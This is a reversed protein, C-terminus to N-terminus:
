KAPCACARFGDEGMETMSCAYGHWVLQMAAAKANASVKPDGVFYFQQYAQSLASSGSKDVAFDVMLKGASAAAFDPLKYTASYTYEKSWVTGVGTQNNAAYVTYDVLTAAKPDVKAVTFAPNNGNVPTISPVLKVPVAAGGSGKILKMEDMHTHGFLALSITGAYQSLADALGTSGLFMTADGGSCVSAGKSMTSYADIGPPIHAMVWVKQQKAAADALQALLWKIQKAAATTDPTGDCTTYRKSEFVDQLVILRTHTFPAPLEINYDGLEPFESVVAASNAASLDTDAFSKADAQLYASNMDEDYDKCGSDNNGLAFYIPSGSFTKKLELAVFAVTKAAFASYGAASGKGAMAKYKCDFQHAMLDGSVTVFLPHPETKREAVLSSVLLPMPTDIGKAKCKQQLAAFDTAQTPTDPATLIAEWGSAPAAMLQAVKGPDHFPDFHIDSLMVVPATAAAAAAKKGQAEVVGCLSLGVAMMLVFGRRIM